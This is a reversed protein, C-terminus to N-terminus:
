EETPHIEGLMMNTLILQLTSMIIATDKQLNIVEESIQQEKREIQSFSEYIQQSLSSQVADFRKDLKKELRNVASQSESNLGDRIENELEKKQAIVISTISESILSMDEHQRDVLRQVLTDVGNVNAMIQSLLQERLEANSLNMQSSIKEFLAKNTMM